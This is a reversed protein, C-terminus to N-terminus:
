EDAVEAVAARASSEDVIREQQDAFAAILSQVALNNILRPCAAASPTSSPSQTTPSCRTRAAPSGSTIPSTAAPRPRISGTRDHLAARHASRTRRLTGMRLQRRLTPQGLLLLCFPATQDMGDNALCRIGDLAEASSCIRKTSSCCSRKGREAHEAALLDQAQPILAANHFRPQGGLGGVISTYIGRLGVGPTGLYVVTHRSADM